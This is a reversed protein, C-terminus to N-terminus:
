EASKTKLSILLNEKVLNNSMWVSHESSYKLKLSASIEPVTNVWLPSGADKWASYWFSAVRNSALLMRKEISAGLRNGYARIFDKSYYKLKRGGREVEMFAKAEGMEARIALETQYVEPLMDHSELLIQFIFDQPNKIYTVTPVQNFQYNRLFEEPVLSEWLVHIGKQNTLQGDHNKTTHLPVHSDAVYHGLDAAYFLVSDKLQHQFSYVLRQYVRNVEWPVLGENKLSDISYKKIAASFDHPIDTRYNPGFVAADMDLYHKPDESKDDRRRVDPRISHTVLYDQNAYFFLGLEPPLVYISVQQLSKHSLFGWSSILISLIALISFKVFTRKLM